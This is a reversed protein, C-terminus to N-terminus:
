IKHMWSAKMIFETVSRKRKTNNLKMRRNLKLLIMTLLSKVPPMVSLEASFFTALVALFLWINPMSLFFFSPARVSFIAFETALVLYLWIFGGTEYDSDGKESCREFDIAGTIPEDPDNRVEGLSLLFILAFITQVIGYYLSVLILKTTNPLQPKATADANDYAVPLMSIDNLLALVIILISPVSCGQGAFCIISLVLVLISSAAMRYAVYSKIRAFIRRSELVAGYIPRLGPETLILDAANRAADTAGEVAIGVQAASLAAADNVGDGTMGTVLGFENKLTLVVERKDRPLVAGFGDAAWIGM